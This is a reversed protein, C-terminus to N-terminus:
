GLVVVVQHTKEDDALPIRFNKENPLTRVDLRV